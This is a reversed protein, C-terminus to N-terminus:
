QKIKSKSKKNGNYKGEKHKNILIDAKIYDLRPWYKEALLKSKNKTTINTNSLISCVELFLDEALHKELFRYIHIDKM